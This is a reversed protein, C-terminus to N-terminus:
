TECTRTENSWRIWGYIALGAYIADLPARAYLGYWVDAVAWASNTVFWIAFCWRVKKINLWTAWLSALAVVWTM